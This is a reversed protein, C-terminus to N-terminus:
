AVKKLASQKKLQILREQEQHRLEDEAKREEDQLAKENKGILKENDDFDKQTMIMADEPEDGFEVVFGRRKVEHQLVM